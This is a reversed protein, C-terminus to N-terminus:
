SYFITNIGNKAAYEVAEKNQLGQALEKVESEMAGIIGYKEM